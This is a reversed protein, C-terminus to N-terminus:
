RTPETVNAVLVHREEVTGIRGFAFSTLSAFWVLAFVEKSLLVAPGVPELKDAKALVSPSRMGGLMGSAMCDEINAYVPVPVLFPNLSRSRSM